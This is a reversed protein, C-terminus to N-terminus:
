ENASGFPSPLRKPATNPALLIQRESDKVDHMSFRVAGNQNKFWGGWAQEMANWASQNDWPVFLLNVQVGHLDLRQVPPKNTRVGKFDHELDSFIFLYKEGEPEGKLRQACYELAGYLDTILSQDMASDNLYKAIKQQNASVREWIGNLRAQKQNWELLKNTPQLLEVPVPPMEAQVKVNQKPDFKGSIHILLFVDSPGLSSVIAQIKRIIREQIVPDRLYSESVDLLLYVARPHPTAIARATTELKSGAIVAPNETAAVSKGTAAAPAGSSRSSCASLLSLLILLGIMSRLKM